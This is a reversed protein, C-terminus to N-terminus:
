DKDLQIQWVEALGSSSESILQNPGFFAVAHVAASPPRSGVRPSVRWRQLERGTQVDWLALNRSPAGTALWRGDDSFRVASFIQQRATFQLRSVLQGTQIDWIQATSQSDATFAFRGQPDLAVKTVRSPHPFSHIIQATETNWLYAMYDNGGTLAFRGNPSLDVSNIRESHGLFELRRGSAFTIHQVGGNGKGILLHEANHSVAIDRVSSEDLQWYGVNEGDAIRWLAFNTRDASLVHSNNPSIALAFVINADADRHNWQYMLGERETDWITIGHQVSSQVAYRGDSSIAAAYTAQAAHKWQQIPTTEVRSCAATILLFLFIPLYKSHHSLRM